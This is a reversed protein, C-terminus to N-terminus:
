NLEMLLRKLRGFGRKIRTAWNIKLLNGAYLLGGSRRPNKKALGASFCFSAQNDAFNFYLTTEEGYDNAPCYCAPTRGDRGLIDPYMALAVSTEIVGPLVFEPPLHAIAQRMEQVSLGQLALPFFLVTVAKNVERALLEGIRSEEANSVNNALCGQRNNVFARSPFTKRYSRGAADVFFEAAEGYDKTTIRPIVIPLCVGGLINALRCDRELNLFLEQYRKIFKRLRLQPDIGVDRLFFPRNSHTEPRPRELQFDSDISRAPLIRGDASFFAM